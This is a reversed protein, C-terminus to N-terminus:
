RVFGFCGDLDRKTEIRGKERFDAFHTWCTFTRSGVTTQGDYRWVLSKNKTLPVVLPANTEIEDVYRFDFGPGATTVRRVTTESSKWVSCVILTSLPVDIEANEKRFTRRDLRFLKTGPSRDIFRAPLFSRRGRTLYEFPSIRCMTCVHIM